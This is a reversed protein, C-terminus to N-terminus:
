YRRRPRLAVPRDLIEKMVVAARLTRLNVDRLMEQAEVASRHHAEAEVAKRRHEAHEAESEGEIGQSPDLAISGNAQATARIPKPAPAAAEQAAKRKLEAASQATAKAADARPHEGQAAQATEKIPAAAKDAKGGIGSEKLYQNWEERSFPVKAAAPVSEKPQVAKAGARQKKKKNSKSISSIVGIVILLVILGDM